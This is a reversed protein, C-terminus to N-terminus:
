IRMGHVNNFIHRIFFALNHISEYSVGKTAGSLPNMVIVAFNKKPKLLLDNLNTGNTEIRKM